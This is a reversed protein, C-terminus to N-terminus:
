SQLWYMNEIYWNITKKLGTEINEKPDLNIPKLNPNFPVSTQFEEIKM